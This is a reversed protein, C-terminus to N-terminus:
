GDNRRDGHGQLVGRKPYSLAKDIQEKVNQWDAARRYEEALERATAQADQLEARADNLEATTNANDINAKALEARLKERRPCHECLGIAVGAIPEDIRENEM